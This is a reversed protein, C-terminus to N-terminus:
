AQEFQLTAWLSDIIAKASEAAHLTLWANHGELKTADMAAGEISLVVLEMLNSIKELAYEADIGEVVKFM